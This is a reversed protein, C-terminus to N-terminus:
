SAEVGESPTARFGRLPRCLLGLLLLIAAIWPAHHAVGEVVPDMANPMNLLREIIWGISAVAAFLAAGIRLLAYARTRSLLLLSPLIAVVVALQMAEIGLNFGLISILRYWQGFGFDSLATAFALGHILGFFAAIAAERGPFIPRIAHIASVLISVAILVEVPRGPLRLLGFASLMLTLSHGLTFATVIRLIQMLSRSVTARRSWRGAYALLPAPLLLTLLFLLHDTGEAIHHVGLGFAGEFGSLSPLLTPAAIPGGQVFDLQYQSQNANRNQATIQIDKDRPVLCNVLFVAIGSQHHNEFILRRHAGGRPMDATFSLQIEGIGQRMQDISPFGAAVLRIILPQGDVKLLLDKLVREAYVQRETESLLGDGNTDISAIVESSVAIGPILRMTGEVRESDVSLITAELYEDLRHAFAPGPLLLLLAALITSPKKM